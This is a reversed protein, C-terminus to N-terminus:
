SSPAYTWIRVGLGNPPTQKSHSLGLPRPGVYSVDLGSQSINVDLVQGGGRGGGRIDRINVNQPRRWPRGGLMVIVNSKGPILLESIGRIPQTDANLPSSYQLVPSSHQVPISSPM